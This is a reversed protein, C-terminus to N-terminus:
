QYKTDECIKTHVQPKCCGRVDELLGDYIADVQQRFESGEKMWDGKAKGLAHPVHIVFSTPVVSFKYGSYRLMVIHSIKNKGYGTFREDFPPPLTQMRAERGPLQYAEHLTSTPCHRLVLYPEYRNSKFCPIPRLDKSTQAVWSKYDTTGHGHVNKMDFIKCDKSIVCKRLQAFNAPM